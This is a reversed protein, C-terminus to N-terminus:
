YRFVNSILYKLRLVYYMLHFKKNVFCMYLLNMAQIKLKGGVICRKDLVKMNSHFLILKTAIDNYPKNMKIAYLIYSVVRTIYFEVYSNKQMQIDIRRREVLENILISEKYFHLLVDNYFKSSTSTDRIFHIYLVDPLVVINQLEKCICLNFDVDEGGHIQEVNFFFDNKKLFDLLYLGNWIPGFADNNIMELLHGTVDKGKYNRITTFTQKDYKKAGSMIRRSFKVVECGYEEAVAVTKALLDPLFLDDHDCFALYKGRAKVMGYNRADCIGGNKKHYVVMRSDKAAYEDCIKGSGDTSGDDVLILEFNAYTQRLVSDITGCLYKGTNYVPMIVSVLTQSM